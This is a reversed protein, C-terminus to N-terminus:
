RRSIRTMSGCKDCRTRSRESLRKMEDQYRRSAEHYQTEHHALRALVWMPNLKGKCNSCEVEAAAEDVLYTVRKMVSGGPAGAFYFDHNCREGGGYPGVIELTREGTPPAKFKVPLKAVEDSM